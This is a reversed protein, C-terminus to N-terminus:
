FIEQCAMYWLKYLVEVYHRERLSSDPHKWCERGISFIKWCLANLFLKLFLDLTKQNLIASPVWSNGECGERCRMLFLPFSNLLIFGCCYSIQCPLPILM